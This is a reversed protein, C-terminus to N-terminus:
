ARRGPRSGDSARAESTAEGGGGELELLRRKRWLGGGYGVLQGDAGVVRHCPVVAHHGNAAGVARVARPRGVAAALAAYTTTAGWPIQGLERWVRQQFDTGLPDLPIAFSRQRGAFYEAVQAAALRTVESSGPVFM